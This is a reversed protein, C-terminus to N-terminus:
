EKLLGLIRANEIAIYSNPANLKKLLNKRHFKFTSLSIQLISCIEDITRNKAIHAILEEERETFKPTSYEMKSHKIDPVFAIENDVTSIILPKFFRDTQSPIGQALSLWLKGGTDMAAAKIQFNFPIYDGGSTLVRMKYSFKFNLREEPKQRFFFDLAAKQINLMYLVDDPHSNDILCQYGMGPVYAYERKPFINSKESLYFFCLRAYDYMWHFQNGLKDIESLIKKQREAESYDLTNCDIEQPYIFKQHLMKFIKLKNLVM